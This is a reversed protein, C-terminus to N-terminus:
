VGFVNAYRGPSPPDRLPCFDAAAPCFKKRDPLQASIWTDNPCFMYSEDFNILLVATQSSYNFIIVGINIAKL